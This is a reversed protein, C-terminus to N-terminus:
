ERTVANVAFSLWDILFLTFVSFHPHAVIVKLLRDNVRELLPRSPDAVLYSSLSALFGGLSIIDKSESEEPYLWARNIVM